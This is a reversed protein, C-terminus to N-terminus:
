VTGCYLIGDEIIPPVRYFGGKDAVYYSWLSDGTDAEYCTIQGFYRPGLESWGSGCYVKGNNYVTNWSAQQLKRAYQLNGNKDLCWYYRIENLEDRKDKVGVYYHNDSICHIDYIFYKGPNYRWNEIGTDINLTFVGQYYQWCYVQSEDYIIKYMSSSGEDAVKTKWKVDGSDIYLCTINHDGTMLVLSDFVIEPAAEPGWGEYTYSYDWLLNLQIEEPDDDENCLDCSIILLIVLIFPIRVFYFFNESKWNM